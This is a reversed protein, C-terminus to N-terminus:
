ATIAMRSVVRDSASSWVADNYCEPSLPLVRSDGTETLFPLGGGYLLSTRRRYLRPRRTQSRIAWM